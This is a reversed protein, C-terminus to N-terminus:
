CYGCTKPCLVRMVTVWEPTDCFGSKASCNLNHASDACLHDNNPSPSPIASIKTSHPTSSSLTILPTSHSPPTTGLSPTTTIATVTTLWVYYSIFIFVFHNSM